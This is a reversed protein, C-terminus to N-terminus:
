PRVFFSLIFALVCVLHMASLDLGVRRWRARM